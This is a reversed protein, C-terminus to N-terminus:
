GVKRIKFFVLVSILDGHQTETFGGDVRTNTGSDSKILSRIRISGLERIKWVYSHLKTMDFIKVYYM